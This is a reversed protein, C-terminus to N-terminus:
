SSHVLSPVSNTETRTLDDLLLDLTRQSAVHSPDVDKIGDSKNRLHVGGGGGKKKTDHNGICDPFINEIYTKVM